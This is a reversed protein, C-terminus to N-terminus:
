NLFAISEIHHTHPFMDVPQLVKLKFLDWNQLFLNIDRALTVPNCSIYLLDFNVRKKLKVLFKVVDKHLWDRPPDVIILNINNLKSKLINEEYILKEVKWLLFCSNSKLLNIEANIKADKIAEEIIEVGILQQWVWNKLLSLWITWTWCYLDLIIDYKDYKKYKEIYELAKTFLLEAWKTNTQFFSFPSIRFFLSEKWINLKETIYGLGRLIEIQINNWKVVDALWNNYTVVFSKVKKTLFNDDKFKEKLKDFFPKFQIAVQNETAVVLNVLFEWTNFWQRVVLHRFVGEHTKQNYNPINSKVCLEKIYNYIENAEESILNCSEVDVVQDWRGQRHFGVTSVVLRDQTKEKEILLEERDEQRKRKLFCYGFSFEVKNRYWNVVPAPLINNVVERVNNWINRFSDKFVEYKLELQKEYPLIQWKCGWCWINCKFDENYELIMNHPCIYKQREDFNLWDPLKEYKILQCDIYDKKDKLVRCSVISDPLVGGKIIIKKWNLFTSIWVGGFWIKEIKINKLIKGRKLRKSVM